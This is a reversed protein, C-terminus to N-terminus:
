TQFTIEPLYHGGEKLCDKLERRVDAMEYTMMEGIVTSQLQLRGAWGSRIRIAEKLENLTRPQHSYARSKLGGM